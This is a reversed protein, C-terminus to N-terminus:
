RGESRMQQLAHNLAGRVSKSLPAEIFRAVFWALAIMSAVVIGLTQWPTFSERLRDIMIWGIWEHLLYLPYTLLGLTTLFRWNLWRLGGVAVLAMILYIATIGAYMTVPNITAGVIREAGAAEKAVTSLTIIWTVFVMTWLVLNSGFKYILFLAMGAIFYQSWRPFLFFDLFAVPQGQAAAAQLAVTAILWLGMFSVVRRYTIGFAVLCAVLFYFKLEILLSWYVGDVSAIGLPEQLLTMNTLVQLPAVDNGLRSFATVIITTFIVAFVYAPFLRTFRAIAFEGVKRGFATMLIVFGSIVFFLEVGLFGYRTFQSLQPFVTVPDVDPGWAANQRATYHFLMVAVAAIFRLLDVERLRSAPLNKPLRTERTAVRRQARTMGAWASDSVLSGAPESGSPPLSTTAM